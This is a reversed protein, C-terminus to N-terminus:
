VIRWLHARETVDDLYDVRRLEDRLDESLRQYIKTPPFWRMVLIGELSKARSLMVYVGQSRATYLDVVARELTRGQSKFDTYSYGPLLPLQKRSVTRTKICGGSIYKYEFTSTEPFIPVLGPDVGPIGVDVGLVRLYVVAAIRYGGEVRYKIDEVIGEVGNVIGKSFALNETVMVKMGCFLPLRGPSDGTERSSLSWLRDRASGVVLSRRVFDRSHYMYVPQGLRKAHFSVYKVNIADRVDKSGVIVPADRFKSLSRVDNKAIETIERTRLFELDDDCAVTEFRSSHPKCLGLRLRDLFGSYDPDSNHRHNKLLKVVVNVQRWLFAGNMANVGDLNRSEEFSPNDVLQHAFLSHQRPPKLQGFDGTFIINVGGFPKHASTPDDQKAQKLRDSFQSLFLAGVMSIEDVVLYRVGRWLSVLDDTTKSKRHPNTMSLSHMTHGGILVAAIGTPAGLLLEDRRGLKEMLLVLAKILHSKGTGGVGAVYMLLQSPGGTIIHRAMIRLARCQERNNGMSMDVIVQEVVLWEEEVSGADSQVGCLRNVASGTDIVQVSSLPDHIDPHSQRSRKAVPDGPNDLADPRRKKKLLAMCAAHGNVAHEDETVIETASGSVVTESGGQADRSSLCYDLMNGQLGLITRNASVDLEDDPCGAFVDFVNASPEDVDEGLMSELAEDVEYRRVDKQREARWAKSQAGRADRCETLVNLNEVVRNYRDKISSKSAYYAALWDPHDGKLEALNRWPVFLILVNRGWLELEESGRDPRPFSDGLLVPVCRGRRCRLVHTNYQPHNKDSFQGALPTLLRRAGNWVAAMPRRPIRVKAIREVFEYLCMDDFIHELSRYMYDLMQNSATISRDGLHLLVVPESPGVGPDEIATNGNTVEDVADDVADNIASRAVEGGTASLRNACQVFASWYLIQFKDSTYHDGGGVLYSMVQQHSIEHHGMMSNVTIIVAGKQNERVTEPTGDLLSPIRINTQRVAYSLAALGVHVPLSPKTIYDTLYYLYAKAAEGSGIFKIDMNCKVLFIVVDNYSAIRPHLRRLLISSTEPDLVTEPCTHGDIGMRCNHDDRAQGRSLHKWCTATHVHWNYEKVLANVHGDFDKWFGARSTMDDVLPAPITGPHPDGTELARRPKALPGRTEVIVNGEGLLECKIISELWRFTKAKYDDSGLMRDRLLQPAPHGQLWVLLHCHLAGRGTAEVTGYHSTCKGFLGRRGSGTRLVVSIFHSIMTHFFSACASPNKAALIMRSWKDIDEGRVVDELDIDHGVNLRVLPHDVDSPNITIFLTPTGRYNIVARIENRRSVKYAASGPVNSAVMSVKALLRLLAKDGDDASCFTPNKKFKAQLAVLRELDVSMLDDILKACRKQPAKFRVSQSVMKKQRINYFVFAFEPDREFRGGEVQLLHALQEDMTLPVKRRPHHFGGIGWPDLHPFLWSLLFPNDFDPLMKSGRRSSLYPNGALCHGLAKMKMDRYSVPSSDGTTFGVNEMLMEGSGMDYENRPTYDSTAGAVADNNPLHGWSMSCPVAEDADNDDKGFLRNVNDASFGKFGDVTSYHPNCELLFEILLRVRSKRVLIPNMRTVTARSPETKGVFIACITDFISEPDPPLADYLRVADLPTVMVNGKVGRRARAAANGTDGDKEDGDADSAYYTGFRFCINSARARAILMLEFPTASEFALRVSSPLVNHGYYLWNALAFKPTVMDKLCDDCQQCVMMPALQERVTLGGPHLIAMNYAMINYDKPLLYLPLEDNKLLILVVDTPDLRRIDPERTLKACVACVTRRMKSTSTLDQWEGIISLRLEEDCVDLYSHLEDDDDANGCDNDEESDGEGAEDLSVPARIDDAVKYFKSTVNSRPRARGRFTYIIDRCLPGCEHIMLAGRLVDLRAYREFIVGHFASIRKLARVLLYRYSRVLDAIAIRIVLNRDDRLFGTTKDMRRSCSVYDFERNFRHVPVLETKLEVRGEVLGYREFSADLCSM